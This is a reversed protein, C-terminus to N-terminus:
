FMSCQVAEKISADLNFTMPPGQLVFVDKGKKAKMGHYTFSEPHENYWFSEEGFSHEPVIQYADWEHGDYGGVAIFVKGKYEFPKRMTRETLKDGSYSDGIEDLKSKPVSIKM